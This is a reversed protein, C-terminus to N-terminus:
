RWKVVDFGSLAAPYPQQARGYVQEALQDARKMVYEQLEFTSVLGDKNSDAKGELGELLAYTFIGHGKYGELAQEKSQAAALVMAGSKRKIRNMMDRNDQAHGEPRSLLKSVDIGEGSQCTDLLIVKRASPVNYM